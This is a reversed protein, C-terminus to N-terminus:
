YQALRASFGSSDGRTPASHWGFASQATAAHRVDRIVVSGLRREGQVDIEENLRPSYLLAPGANSHAGSRRATSGQQQEVARLAAHL